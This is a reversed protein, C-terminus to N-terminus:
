FAFGGFFFHSNEGLKSISERKKLVGHLADRVEGINAKNEGQRPSGKKEGGFHMGRTDLLWLSYLPTKTLADAADWARTDVM